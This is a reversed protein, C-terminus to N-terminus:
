KEDLSKYKKMIVLTKEKINAFTIEDQSFTKFNSAIGEIELSSLGKGFMKIFEEKTINMPINNEFDQVSSKKSIKVKCRKKFSTLRMTTSGKYFILANLFGDNEVDKFEAITLPPNKSKLENKFEDSCKFPIAGFFWIGSLNVKTVKTDAFANVATLLLALVLINKM